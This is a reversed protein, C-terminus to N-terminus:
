VRSIRSERLSSLSKENGLTEMRGKRGRGVPDADEEEKSVMVVVTKRAVVVTKTGTPEVIASGMLAVVVDVFGFLVVDLVVVVNEAVDDDDNSVGVVVLGGIYLGPSAIYGDAPAPSMPELELLRVVIMADTMTPARSAEPAMANHRQILRLARLLLAFGTRPIFPSTSSPSCHFKAALLPPLPFAVDPKVVFFFSANVGVCLSFNDETDGVVLVGSVLLEM